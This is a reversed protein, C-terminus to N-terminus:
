SQASAEPSSARSCSMASEICAGIAPKMPWASRPLFSLMATPISSWEAPIARAAPASGTTKWGPKRSPRVRSSAISETTRAARRAARAARPRLIARDVEPDLHHAAHALEARDVVDHSIAARSAQTCAPARSRACARSTRRRTRSRRATRRPARALGVRHEAGARREVDVERVDLERVAVLRLMQRVAFSRQAGLREAIRQRPELPRRRDDRLGRRGLRRVRDSPSERRATPQRAISSGLANLAYSTRPCRDTPARRPRRSRPRARRRRATRAWAADRDPAVHASDDGDIAAATRSPAASAPASTSSEPHDPRLHEIERDALQREVAPDHDGGRVVRLLVRAHLDHPAARKRDPALRPEEVHAVARDCADHRAPSARRSERPPCRTAAEDVAHEDNM